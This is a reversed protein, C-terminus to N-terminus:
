VDMEDVQQEMRKAEDMSYEAIAVIIERCKTKNGEEYASQFDEYLNQFTLQTDLPISSM